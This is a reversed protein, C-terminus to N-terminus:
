EQEAAQIEDRARRAVRRPLGRRWTEIHFRGCSLREPEPPFERPPLDIGPEPDGPPPVNDPEPTPPVDNPEYPPPVDDPRPPDTEPPRDPPMSPPMDPPEAPVHARLKDEFATQM